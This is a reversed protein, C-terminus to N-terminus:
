YNIIFGTLNADEPLGLKKRLRYRKNEVGRVSINLLPAIEKSSLNMKLYAALRLDGPTLDPYDHMLRKFFDDHVKNFSAEFVEWDHDGELHNDILRALKQLAKPENRAELLDDKLRQLVENKRILNLAANSLERNKNEVELFLKESDALARQRELEQAADAELRLRQRELQRRSYKEVGWLLLFALLLYAISAWISLYWPPLIRINLVAEEACGETRVRFRYKGYPLNTFEKEGSTTWVSWQSSFGELQWSFKPARGYSPVAFLFRLNNERAGLSITSGDTPLAVLGSNTEMLRIAPAAAPVAAYTSGTKRLLAFGTELCFLYDGNSLRIINEFNPVLPLNFSSVAAGEVMRIGSSDVRFFVGNEGPLWKERGADPEPEFYIREATTRINWVGRDSNVRLTGDIFALNLQFDTPLGDTRTFFRQEEVHSLDQSLRLRFLGRNPHAGWLEGNPGFVIKKLPQAFGSLRHSFQWDSEPSKKRFVVLGTYTGQILVNEQGPVAVTSWGGTVDSIRRANYGDILFSGSNHGCLLQTNFATLQWVQGQTGELLEFNGTQTQVFVGQNTGIYLLGRHEAATYVTGIRGSQDIFFTLPSHLAVLDIGRDLGLWLDGASDELMALVTNNQLGNERNLHYRQRGDPALVYVGNLITGVAWGGDRLAIAKNLQFRQFELNLPNPWPRCQHNSIEFIGKNTTGAWLSGQPGPVIFQVIEGALAGTGPVFRFTNDPLLEYLGQGIAPLYIKGGAERAFMISAPPKLVTIKQYDFKYITSFSQFLVFGPGPLIHWIEEQELKDNRVEASLSRYGPKGNGDIIWYGFEAFGGCFVEGHPGTAVARITQRNPLYINRWRVGDFELLGGNNGAYIWGDPSQALAWNQNQAGYDAPSFNRIRPTGQGALLSTCLLFLMLTWLKRM